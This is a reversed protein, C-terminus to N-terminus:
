SPDGKKREAILARIQKLEADSVTNSDLLSELLLLPNGHFVRLLLSRLSNSGAQERTCTARYAYNRGVSRHTIWGAKELKQLTSLITTYALPRKRAIRERVQHVNAEGLDWITEMVALQQRGLQDLSKRSM